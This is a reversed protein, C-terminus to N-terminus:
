NLDPSLNTRYKKYLKEFKSYEIKQIKVPKATRVAYLYDYFAEKVKRQIAAAANAEPSNFFGSREKKIIGECAKIFPIYGATVTRGDEPAGGTSIRFAAAMKALSPSATSVLYELYARRMGAESCEDAEIFYDRYYTGGIYEPLGYIKMFEEYTKIFETKMRPAVILAVSSFAPYVAYSTRIENNIPNGRHKQTFFGFNLILERTDNLLGYDIVRDNLENLYAARKEISMFVPERQAIPKEFAHPGGPPLVSLYKQFYNIENFRSIGTGYSEWSNKPYFQAEQRLIENKDFIFRPSPFSDGASLYPGDYYNIGPGYSLYVYTNQGSGIDTQALKAMDLSIHNDVRLIKARADQSILPYNRRLFSVALRTDRARKEAHDSIARNYTIKHVPYLLFNCEDKSRGDFALRNVYGFYDCRDYYYRNYKVTKKLRVAGSTFIRGLMDNIADESLIVHKQSGAKLVASLYGADSIFADNAAGNINYPAYTVLFDDYCSKIDRAPKLNFQFAMGRSYFVSGNKKYTKFEVIEAARVAPSLYKEAAQPIKATLVIDPKCYRAYIVIDKQAQACKAFIARPEGERAMLSKTFECGIRQASEEDYNLAMAPPVTLFLSLAVIAPFAMFIIKKSYKM